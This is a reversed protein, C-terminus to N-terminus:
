HTKMNVPWYGLKEQFKTYIYNWAEGGMGARRKGWLFLTKYITWTGKMMEKGLEDWEGPIITLIFGIAFPLILIVFVWTLVTAVIGSVLLWYILLGLILYKTYPLLARVEPPVKAYYAGVPRALESLVNTKVIAYGGGFVAVLIIAFLSLTM